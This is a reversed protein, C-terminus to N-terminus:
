FLKSLKKSSTKKVIDNSSGKKLTDNSSGKKLTDNSPENSSETVYKKIIVEPNQAGTEENKCGPCKFKKVSEKIQLIAYCQSCIHQYYIIPKIGQKIM